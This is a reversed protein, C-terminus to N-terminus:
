QVEYSTFCINGLQLIAALVAWTSSLQDDSLSIGELAQVLVLFDQSDEKGLVDCARGQSFIPCIITILGKLRLCPNYVVM